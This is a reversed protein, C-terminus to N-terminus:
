IVPEVNLLELPKAPEKKFQKIEFRRKNWQYCALIYICPIGLGFETIGIQLKEFTEIANDGYDQFIMVKVPSNALLLKEFDYRIEYDDMSWESELVVPVSELRNNTNIRYWILDCLWENEFKEKLGSTCVKFDHKTRNSGHGGQNQTDM